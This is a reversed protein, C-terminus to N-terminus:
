FDHRLGISLLTDADSGIKNLPVVEGGYLQQDSNIIESDTYEVWMLTRKSLRHEFGLQWMDQNNGNDDDPDLRGWGARVTNNGFNYGGVLGYGAYEPVNVGDVDIRDEYSASVVFDGLTLSGGIGWFSYGLSFDSKVQGGGVGVSVPGNNYIAALQYQDINNKQNGTVQNEPGDAMVSGALSLGRLDPSTYILQNSQRSNNSSDSYPNTINGNFVDTYQGVANYMPTYQRGITVAGFGGKLGVWSLRQRLPSTQNPEQGAANVGFEYQYIASLGGGLDESGRVGLRSGQDAIDWYNPAGEVDTTVYETGLRASGYLTTEAQAAASAALAGAVALAIMSKKM